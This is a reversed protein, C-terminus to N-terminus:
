KGAVYGFRQRFADPTLKVTAALQGLKAPDDFDSAELRRMYKRSCEYGEGDVNVIRTPM